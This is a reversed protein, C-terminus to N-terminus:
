LNDEAIRRRVTDVSVNVNRAYRLRQTTEVATQFHNRLVHIAGRRDEAPVTARPLGSGSRSKFSGTERNYRQVSKRVITKPLGVTRAM